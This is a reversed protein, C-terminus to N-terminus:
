KSPLELVSFIARHDSAISENLVRTEIVRWSNKPQCLIFDIQRKPEGVPITPLPTANTRKWETDLLQLSDSGIEDNLDGLLMSPRSEEAVLALISAASQVREKDNVRHDFHTALLLLSGDLQPVAIETALVGRQEGNDVNPLLHNQHKTIPFRSLVANGYHGGQLEINAGFVVNMKTLRALEAPQDVNGTRKTKQDVEQIAVLDPKESLIVKAIRELDLKGDMGEGHHINYSIVRLQIPEASEGNSVASLAAAILLLARFISKMM